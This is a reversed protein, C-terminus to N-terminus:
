KYGCQLQENLNGSQTDLINQKSLVYIGTLNKHGRKHQLKLQPNQNEPVKARNRFTVKLKM